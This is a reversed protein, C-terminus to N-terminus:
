NKASIGPQYFRFTGRGQEKATYMAQDANKILMEDTNADAPYFAIGTSSSINVEHGDLLFPAALAATIKEAVLTADERGHVNPLLVTFEDGALRSITDTERVCVRLRDAVAQLLLDGVHHGLTDNVEKFHDLDIFMLACNHEDRKAQALTQRLRDRFLARNPLSTLADYHALRQIHEAIKKQATIDDLISVFHTISDNEDKIPTIRQQVTFLSGNKHRQVTESSWDKGQLITDWMKQYYVEDQEGSKLLSPYRGIAEESSYGTLITFANNVWMIRGLENTIFVSNGASALATSLLLLQEHDMATEVAVCIRNAISTLRKRMASDDFDHEFQSYLMLAGYVTGRVILPIGAVSQFDPHTATADHMAQLQSDSKKFLQMQGSRVCIGAPNNGLPTNDWRVGKHLLQEMRASATGSQASITLEGGTEKKGLWAFQYGFLQVIEDCVFQLLGPLSRSRLVQQDIHHLLTEEAQLKIRDTIDSAYIAIQSINGQADLIPYISQELHRGNCEDQFQGPQGSRLIKEISQKRSAAIEAPFLEFLNQGIIKETPMCIYLAGVKNIALVIGNADLLIASESTANLLARATERSTHLAEQDAKRKSIDRVVSLTAPKGQYEILRANIEVPMTRGNKAIHQAEFTLRGSRTLQQGREIFQSAGEPTNITAPSMKLLEERTYGLRACFIENVELFPGNVDHIVIGDAVNNFVMHFAEEARLREEESKKRATIDQVTGISRVPRNESDYFTEGREIVHKIRGDAFLLRHEISYTSHQQVSNNHAANVRERDEPHIANRFVEYSPGFTGPEIEFIRYIEDSWVLKMSSLDLEWSGLQSLRQAYKLQSESNLLKAEALKQKGIDSFVVVSGTIKGNRIIPTANVKVHLPTGDKHWFVQSTSNYIQGTQLVRYIECESAPLVSGDLNHHHLLDHSNKGLLEAQTWGLLREAEPNFFTTLQHQGIGYIGEGMTSTIEQLLAENEFVAARLQRRSIIVAALFLALLYLLTVGLGFLAFSRPYQGPSVAPLEGAPILSVIKWYYDRTILKEEIPDATHQLPNVTAFSYLGEDLLISGKQETGITRWAFPHTKALTGNRSYKIGWDIANNPHSLWYGDKNLLMSHHKEGMTRTFYDLLNRSHYNLTLVGQKKGKRDALPTGFRLIPKPQTEIKGDEINLDLASAYIEGPKRKLTEHFFYRDTQNQLDKKSTTVAVSNELNVRIIEMGSNDLYRIQDYRLKTQVMSTFNETVRQKEAPSAENIYHNLSPTQSLLRLDSIAYDFDHILAQEAVSIESSEQLKLKQMRADVDIRLLGYGLGTLIVIVPLYLAFSLKLLSARSSAQAAASTISEIPGLTATM